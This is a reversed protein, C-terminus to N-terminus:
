ASPLVGQQMALVVAQARNHAHLKTFIIRMQSKVTAESLLLRRAIERDGLGQAVLTLIELERRTPTHRPPRPGSALAPRNSTALTEAMQRLMTQNIATDGKYVARIADALHSSSVDMLEYGAAGAVMAERLHEPDARWALILVRTRPSRETLTHTLKLGEGNSRATYLLVVDPKLELVRETTHLSDGVEAVVAIDPEVQLIARLGERVLTQDAMVLVRIAVV